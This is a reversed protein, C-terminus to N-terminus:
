KKVKDMVITAYSSDQSYMHFIWMRSKYYLISCTRSLSWGLSIIGNYMTRGELSSEFYVGSHWDELLFGTQKKAYYLCHSMLM